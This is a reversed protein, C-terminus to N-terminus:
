LVPRRSAGLDRREATQGSAGGGHRGHGSRQHRAAASLSLFLGGPSLRAPCPLIYRGAGKACVLVDWLGGISPDVVYQRRLVNKLGEDGFMAQMAHGASLMLLGALVRILILHIRTTMGM